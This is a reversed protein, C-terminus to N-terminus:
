QGRRPSTTTVSAVGGADGCVGLVGVAPACSPAASAGAEAGFGVRARAFDGWRRGAREGGFFDGFFVLSGFCFFRAGYSARRQM